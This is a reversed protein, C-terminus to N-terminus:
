KVVTSIPQLFGLASPNGPDLRTFGPNGPQITPPAWGKLVTPDRWRKIQAHGDAFSLVGSGNHRSAPFHTWGSTVIDNVFVPTWLSDEHTDILVFFKTIERKNLHDITTVFDPDLTLINNPAVYLNLVDHWGTNDLQMRAVWYGAYRNMAYSRVRDFRTGSLTVTSRDTPCKYSRATSIYPAFLAHRNEVLLSTNTSRAKLIPSEPDQAMIGNVWSPIISNADSDEGNIVLRGRNDDPYLVWAMQVQKLNNLCVTRHALAKARGLAPLLLAALIAIIAIVVLLEILTFAKSTREAPTIAHVRWPIRSFPSM